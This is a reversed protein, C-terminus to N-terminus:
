LSLYFIIAPLLLSGMLNIRRSNSLIAFIGLATSTALVIFGLLGSFYISLVVLIFAVAISIAAYNLKNIHKAFLKSIKLAIFFSIIGSFIIALMIITLDARTFPNLIEKIAASTGSRAKEISYLAVFNLATVITSISGILFLFTRNNQPIIESGIVAAHGSGIGPLFSCLPASLSAAAASSLFEKKSLSIDKLRPIKQKPIKIKSKISVILSSLGFLGTLLPLLPQNIPLNLASFGLFGSLMFIILSSVIHKERFILFLSIFILIFPMATKTINYIKPLFLIFIPTFILVIALATLSGYLTLVVAEHAKGKLLLKHGPLISLFNDENPAGLYISTIFDIFSHAISMAVIFVALSIPRVFALSPLLSLLIASILNIHIGPSLGTITGAAIGLILLITLEIM